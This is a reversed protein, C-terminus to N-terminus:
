NGISTVMLWWYQCNYAVWLQWNQYNKAAIFQRFLCIKHWRQAVVFPSWLIWVKCYVCDFIISFNITPNLKLIALFPLKIFTSASTVLKSATLFSDTRFFKVSNLGYLPNQKHPGLNHSNHSSAYNLESLSNAIFKTEILQVQKYHSKYNIPAICFRKTPTAKSTLIPMMCLQYSFVLLFLTQLLAPCYNFFIM